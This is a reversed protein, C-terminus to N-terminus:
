RLHFNKTKVERPSRPAIALKIAEELDSQALSRVGKLIIKSSGLKRKLKRAAAGSGQLTIEAHEPVRGMEMLQSIIRAYISPSRFFLLPNLRSFVRALLGNEHSM